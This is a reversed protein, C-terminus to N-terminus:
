GRVTQLILDNTIKTLEVHNNEASLASAGENAKNKYYLIKEKTLKNLEQALDRPNFTKAVIGLDYKNVIRAMEISPGIAIALRAQIFEFLKNPLAYKFTLTTPLLIFLGIDFQNIFSVIDEPKVPPLFHINTKGRALKQLKKYYFKRIGNSMLMLNLEFRPDLYDMLEIMLELKREAMAIGHHILRIRDPNVGQPAIKQYASANTIVACDKISFVKEYERAIGDCVTIMKDIKPLYKTCIFNAYEKFFFRWIFNQDFELPAYEHADLLIKNDDRLACALPLTAVDNAYILSFNQKKLDAINTNVLRYIQQNAFDFLKLKLLVAIWPIYFFSKYLCKVQHFKVGAMEPDAYGITTIDLNKALFFKITRRVRPDTRLNSFSIILIKKSM